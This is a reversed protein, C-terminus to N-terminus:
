RSAAQPNPLQRGRFTAGKDSSEPAPHEIAHVHHDIAQHKRSQQRLPVNGLPLSSQQTRSSQQERRQTAPQCPNQSIPRSPNPHQLQSDEPKSEKGKEAAKGLIELLEQHNSSQLAQPETPLPRDASRQHAFADATAKAATGDTSNLRPPRNAPAEADDQKGNEERPKRMCEGPSNHEPDANQRSQENNVNAALDLFWLDVEVALLASRQDAYKRRSIQSCCQKSGQQSQTRLTSVM